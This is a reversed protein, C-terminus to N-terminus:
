QADFPPTVNSVLAAANSHAGSPMLTFLTCGPKMSVGITLLASASRSSPLSIRTASIFAWGIPRKPTGRSIASAM